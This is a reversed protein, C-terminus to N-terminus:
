LAVKRGSKVFQSAAVLAWLLLSLIGPLYFPWNPWGLIPSSAFDEFATIMGLTMWYGLFLAVLITLILSIRELLLQRKPSFMEVFLDVAVHGKQLQCYPFFMLAIVSILLRVFDEYGSLGSVNADFLRAIKDASFAATNITTVLVILLTLIGAILAWGTVVTNLRHQM